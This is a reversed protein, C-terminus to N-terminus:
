QTSEHPDTNSIASLWITQLQLVIEVPNKCDMVRSLTAIGHAGTKALSPITIESVGGLALVPVTSRLVIKKLACLGRSEVTKWNPPYVAGFLVFNISHSEAVSSAKEDHVAASHLLHSYRRDLRSLRSEPQHVGSFGASAAIDADGNWLLPVVTNTFAGSALEALRLHSLAYEGKARVQVCLSPDDPLESLLRIKDLWLDLNGAYDLDVIAVIQPIVRGENM